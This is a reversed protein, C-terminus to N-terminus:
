AGGPATREARPATRRYRMGLSNVQQPDLGFGGLMVLLDQFDEPSLSKSFMGTARQAFFDDAAAMATNFRDQRIQENLVAERAAADGVNLNSRAGVQIGELVGKAQLQRVENPTPGRGNALYFLTALRQDDDIDPRGLFEVPNQRMQANRIVAGARGGIPIANGSKDTGISGSARAKTKALLASKRDYSSTPDGFQDPDIGMAALERYLKRNAQPDATRLANFERESVKKRYEPDQLRALEERGERSWQAQAAAQRQAFEAPAYRRMRDVSGTKAWDDFQGQQEPTPATMDQMPNVGARILRQINARQRDGGGFMAEDRAAEEQARMEDRMASDDRALQRNMERVSYPTPEASMPDRPTMVSTRASREAVEEPNLFNRAIAGSELMRSKKEQIREEDRGSAADLQAETYAPLNAFLGASPGSSGVVPDDPIDMAAAEVPDLDAPSASRFEADSRALEAAYAAEVAAREEPSLTMRNRYKEQLAIREAPTM